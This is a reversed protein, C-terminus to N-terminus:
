LSKTKIERAIASKYDLCDLPLGKSIAQFIPYFFAATFLLGSVPIASFDILRGFGDLSSYYALIIGSEKPTNALRRISTGLFFLLGNM